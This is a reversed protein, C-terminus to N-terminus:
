SSPLFNKEVRRDYCINDHHLLHPISIPHTDDSHAYELHEDSNTLSNVRTIFTLFEERLITIIVQQSEDWRM